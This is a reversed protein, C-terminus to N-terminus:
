LCFESPAPPAQISPDFSSVPQGIDMVSQLLSSSCFNGIRLRLAPIHLLLSQEYAQGFGFTFGGVFLLADVFGKKVNAAILRADAAM